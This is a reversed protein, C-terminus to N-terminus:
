KKRKEFAINRVLDEIKKQNSKVISYNHFGLGILAFFALVIFFDLRRAFKMSFILPDLVGPMISILIFIAWGVFWFMFELQKFEKRKYKVFTFYLMAIGFLVGIWQIAITNDIM